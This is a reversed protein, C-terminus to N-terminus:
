KVEPERVWALARSGRGAVDAAAATRHPQALMAAAPM